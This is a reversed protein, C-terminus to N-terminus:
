KKNEAEKCQQCRQTEFYSCGPSHKHEGSLDVLFLSCCFDGSCMKRRVFSCGYYATTQCSEEGCDIPITVQRKM